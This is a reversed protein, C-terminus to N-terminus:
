RNVGSSASKGNPYIDQRNREIGLVSLFFSSFVIQAGMVMLTMAMIAERLRPQNNFGVTLWDYLIVLNIVLGILFLAGGVLIARDLSFYKSLTEIVKDPRFYEVLAYYKASVGLSIVQVGLLTMLSGLVVYHLDFYQGGFRVPGFLGVGLLLILGLALLLGGPILFVFDPAFLFMMRFNRWAAKFPTLLGTKLHPTRGPVDKRLTVPVETSKLKLLSAKLVMESAYEWSSSQLNMKQLAPLTVARLGCNIDSFRSRFLLNLMSTMIPTGIYRHAFPMAGDEIKGKLRSGMVFEYGADLKEIFPPIERFDYTGDADGMIVYHGRIHPIADIYAQGLGQPVVEVVRAGMQRAIEATRDTSQGNVVLIEGNGGTRNVGEIATQLARPIALEENLAPIVITFKPENM